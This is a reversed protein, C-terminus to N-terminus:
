WSPCIIKANFVTLASWIRDEVEWGTNREKWRFGIHPIFHNPFLILKLSGLKHDFITSFSPKNCCYHRNSVTSNDRHKNWIQALNIAASSCVKDQMQERKCVAEKKWWGNRLLFFSLPLSSHPFRCLCFFLHLMVGWRSDWIMESANQDERDTHTVCGVASGGQLM